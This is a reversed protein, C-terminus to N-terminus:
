MIIKTNQHSFLSVINMRVLEDVQLGTVEVARGNAYRVNHDKDLVIIGDNNMKLSPISILSVTKEPMSIATCVENHM